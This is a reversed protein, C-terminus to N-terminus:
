LKLASKFVEFQPAGFLKPYGKIELAMYINGILGTSSICTANVDGENTGPVCVPAEQSRPCAQERMYSFTGDDKRFIMAKTISGRIADPALECLKRSIDNARRQDDADGTRRLSGLINRISFWTNYLHCVTTGLEDSKLINMASEAALEPMNIKAGASAYFATIKLFGNIGYHMDSKKNWLGNEPNQYRNLYEVCTDVLGAAKIQNTQASITNGAYYSNEIWDFSDLYKVFAEKSQLYEPLSLNESKDSRALREALRDNATPYPLSFGLMNSLGVAWNMDRGRRSDVINKGWQPHYIYGDEECQLGKVFREVGSRVEEPLDLASKITGSNILHTIGQATSEIDPLFPENDRASNSYYFGGSEKDYLGGLWRPIGDSYNSYLEELAEAVAVGDAGRENVSNIVNAWKEKFDITTKMKNEECGGTAYETYTM